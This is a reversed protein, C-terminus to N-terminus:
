ESIYRKSPNPLFVRITKVAKKGAWKTVLRVVTGIVIPVLPAVMPQIAPNNVSEDTEDTSNDNFLYAEEQPVISNEVLYQSYDIDDENEEALISLGPTLVTFSLALIIAYVLRVKFKKM